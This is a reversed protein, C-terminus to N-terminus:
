RTVKAPPDLQPDNWGGAHAILADAEKPGWTGPKYKRIPTENGLIPDLVRWAEEVCDDRTFLVSDGDIADGLLREYPAMATRVHRHAILEVPLGKMAEGPEKVLAGMSIVVDPNLRFRFHNALGPSDDFVQQPPKKLRVLVETCKVPLQKGARIFFPVGAWRWTDMHVRVAAFTEVTSKKAVGPEKLYGDFQGRVVDEPKLPRMSRFLRLKEDRLADASRNAPPGMALLALLQFMHNQVVDRIAGVEDYFKGRGQVGFDEAMTIQMSAVHDRNWIPELLSNAFRFYLLNQVPEKGLYHDIRFVDRERFCRHLTRNLARASQLDRGFPKEVIVRAGRSCGSASLGKVVPVFMSPPIALYHLPHQTDGLAARLKDYTQADGYDGDIYQLQKSLKAFAAKDIGGHEKLSDEARRRLHDVDWGSRAIGIVPMDLKGDKVLAQLAPFIQKYALDGTAGFFVFADSPATPM